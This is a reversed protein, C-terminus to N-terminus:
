GIVMSRSPHDAKDKNRRPWNCRVEKGNIMDKGPRVTADNGLFRQIDASIVERSIGDKSVFWNRLINGSMDITPPPNSYLSGLSPGALDIDLLLLCRLATALDLKIWFIRTRELISSPLM